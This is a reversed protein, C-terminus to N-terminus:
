RMVLSTSDIIKASRQFRDCGARTQTSRPRNFRFDRCPPRQSPAGRRAPKSAQPPRVKCFSIEVGRGGGEEEMAALGLQCLGFIVKARHGTRYESDKSPPAASEASHRPAAPIGGDCPSPEHLADGRDPFLAHFSQDHFQGGWGWIGTENMDLNDISSRELIIAHVDAAM